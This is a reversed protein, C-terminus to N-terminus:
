PGSSPVQGRCQLWGDILELRDQGFFVEGDVVFWPVGFCGSPHAAVSALALAANAAKDERLMKLESLSIYEHGAQVLQDETSIDAGQGFFREWVVMGFAAGVTYDRANLYHV